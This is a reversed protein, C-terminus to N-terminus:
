SGAIVRKQCYIDVQDGTNVVDLFSGPRGNIRLVVEGDPHDLPIGSEKLLNMLYYAEGDSKPPLVRSEGNLTIAISEGRPNPEEDFEDPELEAEDGIEEPSLPEEDYEGVALIVDGGAIVRNLAAPQGNVTVSTWRGEGLATGVTVLADQGCTAPIFDITDGARVLDSLRAKEGNLSLAAPKGPEGRFIERKGNVQAMINKGNRPLFDQISYGNMVLIDQVTMTGNRFLKVKRDNLTIRFSDSILNFGVSIMIGLPTAFESDNLVYEDSVASQEFNKGAIAVRGLDMGLEKAVAERMGRLKSGGGALFVASPPTGGNVEVIRRAIEQCLATRAGNVAADLDGQSVTHDMGLIDTFHVESSNALAAKVTEATGFDLLYTKMLSETIEDGAVTAMTYGVIGGDRSVAIDSTGAGIDVLALNLLRLSSPIVANIAAIPELTMSAVELGLMHMTTYLSEVVESPLFTAVVDAHLRRGQHNLLSSMPYGDLQYEVVTHGVMYFQGSGGAGAGKSFEAEARTIAGNELRSVTEEDIRVQEPFEMDFSAAQMKLARGAAAICVRTLKINLTAELREKVKRAVSAVQAIDEIQGDIMARKAHVEEEIALIRLKEEEMVGVMGIISRTGIDLAFILDDASLSKQHNSTNM